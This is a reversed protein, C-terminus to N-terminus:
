PMAVRAWGRGEHGFPQAEPHLAEVLAQVVLV